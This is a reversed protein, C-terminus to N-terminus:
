SYPTIYLFSYHTTKAVLLSYLQLLTIGHDSLEHVYIVLDYARIRTNFISLRSKYNFVWLEQHAVIEETEISARVIICVEYYHSECLHRNHNAM